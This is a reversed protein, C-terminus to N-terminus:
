LAVELGYGTSTISGEFNAELCSATGTRYTSSMVAWEKNYDFDGPYEENEFGLYVRRDELINLADFDPCSGVDNGEDCYKTPPADVDIYANKLKLNCTVPCSTTDGTVTVLDSLNLSTDTFISTAETWYGTSIAFSPAVASLTVGACTSSM